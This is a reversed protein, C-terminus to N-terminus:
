FKCFELHGPFWNTTQLILVDPLWFTVLSVIKRHQVTGDITKCPQLTKHFTSSTSDKKFNLFFFLDHIM